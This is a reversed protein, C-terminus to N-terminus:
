ECALDARRIARKSISMQEVDRHYGHRLRGSYEKSFMLPDGCHVANLSQDAFSCVLCAIGYPCPGSKIYRSYNLIYLDKRKGLELRPRSSGPMVWLLGLAAMQDLSRLCGLAVVWLLWGFRDGLAVVWLSWERCGNTFGFERLRKGLADWQLLKMSM